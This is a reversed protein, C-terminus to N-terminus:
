RAWIFYLIAPSQLDARLGPIFQVELPTRWGHDIAARARSSGSVYQLILCEEVKCSEDRLHALDDYMMQLATNGHIFRAEGAFVM